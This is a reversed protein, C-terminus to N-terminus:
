LRGPSAVPASVLYSLRKSIPAIARTMAGQSFAPTIDSKGYMEHLDVSGGLSLSAKYKALADKLSDQSQAWLTLAALQAIGYDIYYFPYQFIHLQRYWGMPRQADLGTWDVTDGWYSKQLSIWYADREAETSNIGVTYVWSQFADVIAIHPLILIIGELHEEEAQRAEQPTYYGTPKTRLDSTLLEMSMSAFEAMEHSYGYAQWTTPQDATLYVHFAHGAEHILTEVDDQTHAANMFIFPRRQLPLTTCYGGPAKNGRSALDLRAHEKMDSFFGGLQPDLAHFIRETTDIFDQESEYPRLKKDTVARASLDWPRLKSLGLKQARRALVKKAEPMVVTRVAEHFAACDQPTYPRSKARFTYAQFDSFGCRTAVRARLTLMQTYIDNLEPKVRLFADMAKQWAMQRVAPDPDEYYPKLQPLPIPQGNWDVSLSSYIKQYSLSLETLRGTDAMSEPNFTDRSAQFRERPVTFGVPCLFSDLFKTQLKVTAEELRPGYDVSLRHVAEEAEKDATNQTYRVHAQTIAEDITADLASWTQLWADVNQPTLPALELQSYFDLLTDLSATSVTELTPLVLTPLM